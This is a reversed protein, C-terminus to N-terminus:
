RTAACRPNKSPHHTGVYVPFNIRVHNLDRGDASFWNMTATAPLAYVTLEPGCGGFSGQYFFAGLRSPNLQLSKVTLDNLRFPAVNDHVAASAGPTPALRSTITEDLLHVPGLVVRAVGDPVVVVGRDVGDSVYASLLLGRSRLASVGWQASGQWPGGSEAVGPGSLTLAVGATRPGRASPRTTVPFIGVSYPSGPVAVTRILQRDVRLTCVFRARCAPSASVRLAAPLFGNLDAKTQPRRLVGLLDVLQREPSAPKSHAPPTTPHRHSLGAVAAVVVGIVLLTSVAVPWARIV